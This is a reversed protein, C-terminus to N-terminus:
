AYPLADFAEKGHETIYAVKKQVTDLSSRKVDKPMSGGNGGAGAGASGGGAGAMKAKFAGAYDDQTRMESVLDAITMYDGKGNVRPNGDKDVVRVVYEGSDTEVVRCHQKVIPMLLVTSGQESVIAATAAGDLLYRELTSQMSKVKQDRTQLDKNHSENLQRKLDEWRGEAKAKEEELKAQQAKLQLLEDVNADGLKGKLEQLAKAADRAAKREGELANKLASTDEVKDKPVFNELGQLYFKGEREVYSDHLDAPLDQLSDLVPAIKLPM